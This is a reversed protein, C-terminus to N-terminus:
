HLFLHFRLEGATSDYREEQGSTAEKEGAIAFGLSSLTLHTGGSCERLLRDIERSGPLEIGILAVGRGVHPPLPSIPGPPTGSRVSPRASSLGLSEVPGAALEASGPALRTRATGTPTLTLPVSLAFQGDILSVRGHGDAAAPIARDGDSWVAL